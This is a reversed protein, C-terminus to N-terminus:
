GVHENEERRWWVAAVSQALSGLGVAVLVLPWSRGWSLGYWENSAVLLWFGIGITSVGSGVNKPERATFLSGLGAVIVFVPWWVSLLDGPLIGNMMLLFTTGLGILILGWVIGSARRERLEVRASM